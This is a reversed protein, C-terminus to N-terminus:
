QSEHIDGPMPEVAGSRIVAVSKNRVVRFSNFALRSRVIEVGSYGALAATVKETTTTCLPGLIVKVLRLQDGFNYFYLGTGDRTELNLVWRIEQEYSWGSFKTTWLRLALNLDITKLRPRKAVYKVPQVLRDDIDFGLCIGKHKDAYHGWLLPNRWSRCFCVLGYRTAMDNKFGQFARRLQPNPQSVGWLEFPDNLDNFTSIKLRRRALDDLAWPEALFHYVRM